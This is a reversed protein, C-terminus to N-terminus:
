SIDVSVCYFEFRELSFRTTTDPGFVLFKMEREYGNYNDM